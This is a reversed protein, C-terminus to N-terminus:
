LENSVPELGTPCLDIVRMRTATPVTAAPSARAAPAVAVVWAPVSVAVSPGPKVIVILLFDTGCPVYVIVTLSLDLMWLKWRVPGPTSLFVLTEATLVYVHFTVRFFPVYLNTQSGCLVIMFPVRLTVQPDLQRPGLGRPGGGSAGTPEPWTWPCDRSTNM